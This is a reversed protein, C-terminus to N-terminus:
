LVSGKEVVVPYKEHGTLTVNESITVNKDTIVCQLAAGAKVVTDKFLICNEVTAGKEVTVGRFLVSNRVTGRIDCGDGILSNVCEGAPDIYTSPADNDKSLVPRAPTFLEARVASDLLGMSREYYASVSDIRAAYGDWMWARFCLDKGKDQLIHHRFSYYNHAMCDTVLDLLLAKGLIYINLCRCGGTVSGGYVTDVIRGTDDLTFYTDDPDGPANTCVCTMDAGSAKHAALVDKLPLNIALDSDALVVYEQRIHRLYDIVCGLAEMKGRFPGNDGRKENYAFAPLLKLGGYNRSLGWSKGTGLHDLISQCKGEMIVGVDTIGANVYNSLMFDVLRYDGAFPISGHVRAETLERLDTKKEYSFIIGHMGNM